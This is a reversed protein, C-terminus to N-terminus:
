KIWTWILDHGSRRDIMKVTKGDEDKAFIKSGRQGKVFFVSETEPLLEVAERGTRQGYLRESKMTVTYQVDDALQYVGEYSQLIEPRVSMTNPHAPVEFLEFALVRWGNETKVYTNTMAYSTRIMQGYLALTEDVLFSLACTGNHSAVIPNTVHITGVYGSPLPQLENILDAKTKQVGDETIMICNPLLYKHWIATDGIAVADLLQQAIAVVAASDSVPKTQGSAVTAAVFILFLAPRLFSKRQRDM